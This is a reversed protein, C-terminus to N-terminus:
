KFDRKVYGPIIVNGRYQCKDSEHKCDVANFVHGSHPECLTDLYPDVGDLQPIDATEAPEFDGM